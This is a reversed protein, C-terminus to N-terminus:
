RRGRPGTPLRLEVFQRWDRQSLEPLASALNQAFEEILGEDGDWDTPHITFTWPKDDTVHLSPRAESGSNRLLASCDKVLRGDPERLELQPVGIIAGGNFGVKRCVIVRLASIRHGQNLAKQFTIEVGSLPLLNQGIKGVSGVQIGQVTSNIAGDAHLDAAAAQFRRTVAALAAAAAASILGENRTKEDNEDQTRQAEAAAASKYQDLVALGRPSLGSPSGDMTRELQELRSTVTAMLSIRSPLKCIMQTLLLRLGELGPEALLPAYQPDGLSERPLRIGTFLYFIVKGLSYVDAAATVDLNGGHELEPAMFVAPGVVEGLETNRTRGDDILCIGFDTIWIEDGGHAVLLINAPKIDRHVISAAHAAQLGAAIQKAVHLTRKLDGVFRAGSKELDGGRAVPMVIYQKTEEEPSADLASHDVLTIVNPHKLQKIAEVENRFRDRRKPNLVRKLAFPGASPNLLDKVELVPGQGGSGLSGPLGEWRNGYVKGM